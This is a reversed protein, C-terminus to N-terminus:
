SNMLLQNDDASASTFYCYGELPSDACSSMDEVFAAGKNAFSKALDTWNAYDEAPNDACSEVTHNFLLAGCSAIAENVQFKVIELSPKNYKLKM